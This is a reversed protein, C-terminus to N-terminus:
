YIVLFRVCFRHTDIIWNQCWFSKCRIGAGCSQIWSPPQPSASAQREWRSGVTVALCLIALSIHLVQSECKHETVSCCKVTKAQCRNSITPPVLKFFLAFIHVLVPAEHASQQHQTVAHAQRMFTYHCQFAVSVVFRRPLQARTHVPATKGMQKIENSKRKTLSM